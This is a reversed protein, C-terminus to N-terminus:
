ISAAVVARLRTSHGVQSYAPPRQSSAGQVAAPVLANLAQAPRLKAVARPRGM